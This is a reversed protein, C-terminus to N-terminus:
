AKDIYLWLHDLVVSPDAGPLANATSLNALVGSMILCASQLSISPSEWTGTGTNLLGAPPLGPLKGTILPELFNRVASNLDSNLSFRLIVRYM